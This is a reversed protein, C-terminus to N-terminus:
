KRSDGPVPPTPIRRHEYKKLLMAGYEVFHPTGNKSFWHCRCGYLGTDVILMIPSDPLGIVTVKDGIKLAENEM